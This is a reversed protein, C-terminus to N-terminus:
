NVYNLLEEQELQIEGNAAKRGAIFANRIASFYIDYIEDAEYTDLYESFAEDYDM